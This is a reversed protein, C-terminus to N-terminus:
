GVLLDSAVIAPHGTVVAFKVGAAGGFGDADYYMSGTSTDYYVGAGQAASTSGTLGAGSFFHDSALAGAAGLATFISASLQLHDGATFDAITDVNTAANLATDFVFTDNGLGGRLVDNGLGGSLINAAANGVLANALENGTANIAATGTLALQEVNAGLTFSVSSQV